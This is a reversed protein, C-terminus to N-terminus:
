HSLDFLELSMLLSNTAQQHPRGLTPEVWRPEATRTLYVNGESCAESCLYAGVSPEVNKFFNILNDHKM